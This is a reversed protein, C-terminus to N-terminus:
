PMEKACRRPSTGGAGSEDHFIKGPFEDDSPNPRYNNDGEPTEVQGISVSAGTPLNEVGIREALSTLGVNDALDAAAAAALLATCSLTLVTRLQM